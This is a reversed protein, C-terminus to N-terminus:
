RWATDGGTRPADVALMSCRTPRGLLWQDEIATPGDLAGRVDHQRLRLLEALSEAADLNDDVVLMRLQAVHDVLSLTPREERAM